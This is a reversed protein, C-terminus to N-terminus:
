PQAMEASQILRLFKWPFIGITLKKAWEKKDFIVRAAFDGKQTEVQFVQCAALSAFKGIGFQGIRDRHFKSSKSHYLKEQSGINFYQKLGERDMGTGDDKIVIRDQSITVEVVSADADYANNILERILEISESYLKEGITILHSKDVTVDLREINKNQEETPM